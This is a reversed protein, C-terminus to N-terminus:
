CRIISAAWSFGLGSAALIALKGEALLGERHAKAMTFLCDAPGIHGFEGMSIYTHSEPMGVGELIHTRLSSKVQNMLIYDM